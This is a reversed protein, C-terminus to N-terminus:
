CDLQRITSYTHPTLHSGEVGPVIDAGGSDGLQQAEPNVLSAKHGDLHLSAVGRYFWWGGGRVVLWASPDPM